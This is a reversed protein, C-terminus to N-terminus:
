KISLDKGSNNFIRIVPVGGRIRCSAKLNVRQFGNEPSHIIAVILILM